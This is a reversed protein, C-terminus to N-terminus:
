HMWSRCPGLWTSTVEMQRCLAATCAWSYPKTPWIVQDMIPLAPWVTVQHGYSLMWDKCLGLLALLQKESPSHNDASSLLAKSWFVLLRHQWEGITAQWLSWVDGRTQVSAELVKADAPDEPERPLAVQVAAQVQHLSKEQGPSWESSALKWAVWYVLQQLVGLHPIRQRWFRLLGVVHQAEKKTTPPALHLLKAMVKSPIDQCGGFGQFGLYKVSISSGLIKTPNKGWETVLHWEM